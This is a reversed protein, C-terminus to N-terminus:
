SARFYKAQSESPQYPPARKGTKEQEIIMHRGRDVSISRVAEPQQVVLGSRNGKSNARDGSNNLGSVGPIGSSNRGGLGKELDAKARYSSVFILPSQARCLM